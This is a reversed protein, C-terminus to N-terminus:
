ASISMEANRAMEELQGGLTQSLSQCLRAAFGNAPDALSRIIEREIAPRQRDIGRAVAAPLVAQRLLVPLRARRLMREMGSKGVVALLVGAAAGAIMGLPGASILAVGGGGCVSAGAAALVVGLLGSLVDMGMADTMSLSIGGVGADLRTGSLSMQEPPVGCRLCLSTLEGELARLLADTWARLPEEMRARVAEGGAAQVIRAAIVQELEEITAVGGKRWLAVADLASEKAAEFLAHALPQYLEHISAGVAASLREGRALSAVERRFLALHEDVRGAYALGRAISCEPEPCLVILSGEFAARCAERFFAMRSAGGTLIVAQPPCARSVTKAANLADRLCTVFSRGGLAAAPTRIIEEMARADLALELMLTEDYCVVVPARLAEEQWKEEDLFYREKLRRAELECYSRWAPSEALVRELGARDPSAKVCRALILEDLVGGGLNTDGFLSLNQQHGDVIYAFDTTSSGIDIVVASRRMLAPDIRLGRAHRAYLFAARPEPVVSVNPFGASEMLAAYQQRRGEGWGAPCGVVTRSVEAMLAPEEQMLAAMVGQAFARVAAHAQPDTLYRSKFRVQADQAGALVSAEEGVVIRGERTGVASLLSTRGLLPLMRPEVTSDADLVAVASEGDGLDFGLIKM